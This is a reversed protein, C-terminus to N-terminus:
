LTLKFTHVQESFAYHINMNYTEAISKVLSLGLGISESSVNSKRFRFFMETSPFPLRDGTNSISFGNADSVISLQGGIVNHRIANHILNSVLIDALTPNMERYISNQFDIHLTIDKADIQESYNALQHKILDALNISKQDTFQKNEIKTLLLLTRNLSSMKKVTNEISEIANMETETLNQAQMLVSLNAKIIALPTQMEHSANEAFEKHQIFDSYLKNTMANLATNLQEFELTTASNLQFQKHEQIQYNSLQQITSYFPKWLTKSIIWNVVLFGIGLFLLLIGFGAWLGELLEEEEINSEFIDIQYNHKNYRYFGRLITYEVQEKEIPDYILTDKLLSKELSTNVLKIKSYGDSSLVISQPFDFSRIIKKANYFNTYLIEKSGNKLEAKIVFYSLLTAFGILPISIILYYLTTKQLLKM